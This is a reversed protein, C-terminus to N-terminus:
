RAVRERTIGARKKSVDEVANADLPIQTLSVVPVLRLPKGQYRMVEEASPVLNAAISALMETLSMQVEVSLPCVQVLLVVPVLRLPGSQVEMVEEASPVLNAAFTYPPSM